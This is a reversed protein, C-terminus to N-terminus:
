SLPDGVAFRVFRRVAINEGFKAVADQVVARVTREQDRVFPQELLCNEEYFKGLKGEVIRDVVKEPKGMNRAQETLIEREKDLVDPTVHDRDLFRPSMAAAHMAVDQALRQFDPNRAVFDTECVLEVLVGIRAGMHIYHGICGERTERGAKKAAVVAGRKRLITRAEEFDGGAEQLAQKCDMIGAGTEDRLKKVDQASASM